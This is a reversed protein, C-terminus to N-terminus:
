VSAAERGVHTVVLPEGRRSRRRGGRSRERACFSMFPNSGCRRRPACGLGVATVVASRRCACIAAAAPRCHPRREAVQSRALSGTCIGEMAPPRPAACCRGTPSRHRPTCTGRPCRHLSRPPLVPVPSIGARAEGGRGAQQRRTSRRWARARERQQAIPPPARAGRERARSTRRAALAPAPRAAAPAAASSTSSSNMKGDGVRPCWLDGLYLELVQRRLFCGGRPTAAPWCRDGGV